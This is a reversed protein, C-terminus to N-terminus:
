CKDLRGIIAKLCKEYIREFFVSTWELVTSVVDIVAGLIMIAIGMILDGLGGIVSIIIGFVVVFMIIESIVAGAGEKLIGHTIAYILYVAVGALATIGGISILRGIAMLLANFASALGKFIIGLVYFTIAFAASWFIVFAVM